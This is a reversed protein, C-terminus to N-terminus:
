ASEILMQGHDKRIVVPTVALRFGQMISTHTDNRLQKVDVSILQLMYFQGSTRYLCALTATSEKLKRAFNSQYMLSVGM